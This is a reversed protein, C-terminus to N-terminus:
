IACIVMQVPLLCPLCFIRVEVVMDVDRLGDLSDVVSIRERIEKSQLSTLRGKGVDKVLLKEIFGLGKDIQEKSRDHLVVQVKAYQVSVLAIGSGTHLWKLKLLAIPLYLVVLGNTWCWCSRSYSHWPRDGDIETYLISLRQRLCLSM